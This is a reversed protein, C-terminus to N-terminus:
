KMKLSQLHFVLKQEHNRFVLCEKLCSLEPPLFLKSILQRKSRRYWVDFMVVMWIGDRNCSDSKWQSCTLFAFIQSNILCILPTLSLLRNTTINRGRFLKIRNRPLVWLGASQVPILSTTTLSANKAGETDLQLNRL